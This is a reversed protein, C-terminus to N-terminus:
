FLSEMFIRDITGVSTKYFRDYDVINLKEVERTVVDQQAHFQALIHSNSMLEHHPRTVGKLAIKKFEPSTWSFHYLVYAIRLTSYYYIMFWEKMFKAILENFSELNDKLLENLTDFKARASKLEDNFDLRDFNHQSKSSRQCNQLFHEYEAIREKVSMYESSAANRAAIIRSINSCVHYVVKLPTQVGREFFKFDEDLRRTIAYMQKSLKSICFDRQNSPLGSSAYFYELIETTRQREECTPIPTGDFVGGPTLCEHSDETADELILRFLEILNISNYFFSRVSSKYNECSHYLAEVNAHITRFKLQLENFRPDVKQSGIKRTKVLAKSSHAAKSKGSVPEQIPSSYVKPVM